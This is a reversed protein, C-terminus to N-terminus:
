ADQRGPDDAREPVQAEQAEQAERAERAERAEAAAPEPDHVRAAPTQPQAQEAVPERPRVIADRAQLLSKLMEDPISEGGTLDDCFPEFPDPVNIEPHRFLKKLAARRVADTVKAHMFVTFDSEPTLAEVPPLAVENHERPLAPERRAEAGPATTSAVVKEAEGPEHAHERKRRSWRALFHEDHHAM